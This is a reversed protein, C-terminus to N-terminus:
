TGSGDLGVVSKKFLDCELSKEALLSKYQELKGHLDKVEDDTAQRKSDGMLRAKGGEMFAKCWSYYIAPSIKERRCLDATSLERKFSEMVIRIKDEATYRKRTRRKVEGLLSGKRNSGNPPTQPTITTNM